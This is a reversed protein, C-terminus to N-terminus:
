VGGKSKLQKIPLHPYGMITEGDVEFLPVRESTNTYAIQKAIDEDGSLVAYTHPIARMVGDIRVYVTRFSSVPRAM